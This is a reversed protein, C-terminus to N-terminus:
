SRRGPRWLTRHFPHVDRVVTASSACRIPGFPDRGILRHEEDSLARDWVYVVYIPCEYSAFGPENTGSLPVAGLFCKDGAGDVLADENVDEKDHVGDLFFRIRNNALFSAGGVYTNGASLIANSSKDDAGASGYKSFVLASNTMWASFLWGSTDQRAKGFLSNWANAGPLATFYVVVSLPSSTPLSDTEDTDFQLGDGTAATPRLALGAPGAELNMDIPTGRTPITMSVDRDDRQWCPLALKLGRWAWQWESSIEGPNVTWRMPKKRIAPATRITKRSTVKKVTDDLLRSRRFPGFPDRALLRVEEDTFHRSWVYACSADMETNEGVSGVGVAIEQFSGAKYDLSGQAASTTDIWSDYLKGDVYVHLQQIESDRWRAVAIAEGGVPFSVEQGAPTDRETTTGDVHLMLNAGAQYLYISWPRNIRNNGSFCSFIGGYSESAHRTCVIAATFETTPFQNRPNLSHDWAVHDDSGDLDM